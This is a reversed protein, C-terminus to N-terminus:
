RKAALFVKKYQEVRFEFPSYTPNQTKREKYLPLAGIARNASNSPSTVSITTIKRADFTFEYM